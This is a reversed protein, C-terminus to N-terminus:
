ALEAEDVWNGHFGPPVRHPLRIRATPAGEFDNVDLIVLDTSENATDVVLGMLHGDLEGPGNPVFVFEGPFRTEDFDHVQREGAELDHRYLKNAGIGAFESEENSTAVTYAYRYPKGTLREDFRPFEQPDSDLVTREVKGGKADIIWREFSMVSDDPGETSDHFLRDHVCVDMVVSGDEREYANAPHFVYCPDIDHWVITDGAAERGLLGIRAKHKDNWAYPFTYGSLVLKMSFTVPLDMVVVHNKTIACDHISPGHEVTVPERRRVKGDTGVVVHWIKDLDSAHYCVAHLEGTEPDKHPHASFSEGLTGEFDTHAVTDLENSLQVPFGGAEVIGFIRGAHGIVNTNANDTRENRPGPAEEEKLLLSVKKSRLWRNRYWDAKGDSIRIGHVMGDGAFWHHTAANVPGIPNPGIRMYRGDLHAPITGEVPLAELTLEEEMPTHIGTLYPHDGKRSKLAASAKGIGMIASGVTKRITDEVTSAM